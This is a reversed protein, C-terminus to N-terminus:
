SENGYYRELLWKEIKRRYKVGVFDRKTLPKVLITTVKANKGAWIDALLQDGVIATNNNKTGLKKMAKRVGRSFPKLANAFGFVGLPGSFKDLRANTNNSLLCIVFGMGHLRKVLAVIKAPPHNDEYPALTNDLDFVLGRVGDDWLKAYPIDHVTECYYDPKFMGM